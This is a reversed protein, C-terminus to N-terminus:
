RQDYSMVLQFPKHGETYIAHACVFFDTSHPPAYRPFCRNSRALQLTVSSSFLELDISICDTTIQKRSCKKM